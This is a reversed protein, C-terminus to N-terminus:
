SHCHLGISQKLLYHFHIIKTHQPQTKNPTTEPRSTNSHSRKKRRSRQEAMHTTQGQKKTKYKPLNKKPQQKNALTEPPKKRTDRNKCTARKGDGYV